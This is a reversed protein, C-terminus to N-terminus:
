HCYFQFDLSKAFFRVTNEGLSLSHRIGSNEVRLIDDVAVDTPHSNKSVDTDSNPQNSKSGSVAIESSDDPRFVKFLRDLSFYEAFSACYRGPKAKSDAKTSCLDETSNRIGNKQPEQFDCM